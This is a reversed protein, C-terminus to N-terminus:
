ENRWFSYIIVKYWIQTTKELTFDYGKQMYIDKNFKWQTEIAIIRTINLPKGSVLWTSLRNFSVSCVLPNYMLLNNTLMSCHLLNIPTTQQVNALHYQKIKLYKLFRKVSARWLLIFHNDYFSFFVVSDSCNWFVVSDTCNWFGISFDYVYSFDIGMASTYMVVWKKPKTCASWYFPPTLNTKHSNLQM